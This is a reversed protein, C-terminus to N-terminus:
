GNQPIVKSAMYISCIFYGFSVAEPRGSNISFFIPVPHWKYKALQEQYKSKQDKHTKNADNEIVNGISLIPYWSYLGHM